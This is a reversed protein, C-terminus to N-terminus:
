LGYCFKREAEDFSGGRQSPKTTTSRVERGVKLEVPAITNAKKNFRWSKMKQIKSKKKKFFSKNALSKEAVKSQNELDAKKDIYLNYKSLLTDIDVFVIKLNNVAVTDNQAQSVVPEGGKIM